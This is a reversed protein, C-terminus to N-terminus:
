PSAPWVVPIEGDDRCAGQDDWSVRRAIIQVGADHAVKLYLAFSPCAAANPSFDEADGRCVVFLIAAEYSSDKSKLEVMRTLEQVHKIARASVVTEGDPGKQKGCGCPFLATRRYTSANKYPLVLNNPSKLSPPVDEVCIYDTDVVTKVEILRKTGDVHKLFFDTRMKSGDPLAFAKQKEVQAIAPLGLRNEQILREAVREGLSPHAGVYASPYPDTIPGHTTSSAQTHTEDVYLLQAHYECKPTGYKSSVADPGVKIGNVLAPKVL